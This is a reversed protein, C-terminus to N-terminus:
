AKQDAIAQIVRALGSINADLVTALGRIPAIMTGLVTAVLVEKSPLDALAKVGAADIVKGDVFGAKVTFKEQAALKKSFESVVKAAAVPDGQCLAISTTGKLVNTLDELGANKVAFRLLTNKMVFYDVGAERMKARLETDEAVTIGRYDVIVGAAANQLKETLEAVVAQKESLIKANPMRNKVEM